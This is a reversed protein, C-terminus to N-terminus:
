VAKQFTISHPQDARVPTSLSGYQVHDHPSHLGVETDYICSHVSYEPVIVLEIREHISAFCHQFMDTFNCVLDGNTRTLRHTRRSKEFEEPKGCREMSYLNGSEAPPFPSPEMKDLDQEM